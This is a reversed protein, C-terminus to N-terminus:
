KVNKNPEITM